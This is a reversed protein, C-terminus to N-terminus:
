SDCHGVRSLPREEVHAQRLTDEACDPLRM